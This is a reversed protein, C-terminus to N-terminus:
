ARLPRRAELAARIQDQTVHAAAKSRRNKQHDWPRPYTKAKRGKKTRAQVYADFHTAAIMAEVSMPYEWDALAAFVHSSPDAKLATVMHVAEGYPMGGPGLALPMGFRARWDYAFAARHRRM